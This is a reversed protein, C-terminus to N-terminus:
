MSGAPLELVYSADVPPLFVTPPNTLYTDPSVSREIHVIEQNEDLWVIDIPFNMDKMWFGHRGPEDYAFLMGCGICLSERDSLGQSRSEEDAVIEVQYNNDAVSATTLRNGASSRENTKIYLGLEEDLVAGTNKQGFTVAPGLSDRSDGNIFIFALAMCLVFVIFVAIHWPKMTTKRNTQQTDNNMIM